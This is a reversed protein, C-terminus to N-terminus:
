KVLEDLTCKFIESMKILMEVSPYSKNIEWMSLTSRKVGLVNSLQIQTMNLSERYEKIKM